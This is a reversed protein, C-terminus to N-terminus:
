FQKIVTTLPNEMLSDTSENIIQFSANAAKERLTETVAGNQLTFQSKPSQQKSEEGRWSQSNEHDIKQAPRLNISINAAKEM